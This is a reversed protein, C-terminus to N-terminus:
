LAGDEGGVDEFLDTRPLLFVALFGRVKGVRVTSLHLVFDDLCPTGGTGVPSRKLGANPAQLFTAGADAFGALVPHHRHEFEEAEVELNLVGALDDVVAVVRDRVLPVSM